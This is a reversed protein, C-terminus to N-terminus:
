TIKEYNNECNKQFVCLKIEDLHEKERQHFSFVHM